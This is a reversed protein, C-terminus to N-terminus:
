SFPTFGVKLCRKRQRSNPTWKIPKAVPKKALTAIREEHDAKMQWLVAVSYTRPQKDIITHHDPCVLILNTHKNRESEDLPEDGRPGQRSDAVIHAMEGIIADSDGEEGLEILSRGCGRFACVSGSKLFM